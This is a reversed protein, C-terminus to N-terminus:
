FPQLRTWIRPGGRNADFLQQADRDIDLSSVIVHHGAMDSHQPMECGLWNDVPHGVPNGFEDKHPTTMARVKESQQPSTILM